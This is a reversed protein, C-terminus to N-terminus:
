EDEKLDLDCRLCRSAEDRADRPNYGLIVEEFSTKRASIPIEPVHIRPHRKTEEETPPTSSIPIPTYGNRHVTNSLTKGHLYDRISSAARQGASIAEIVTAPGTLADGGAFVGKVNTALTRKDAIIRESKDAKIDGLNMSTTDPHQGVAKIVMDVDLSYESNPIPEPTRRGSSDFAKLEMSVCEISRVKGDKEIVKTPAALFHFKVGEEEAAIVEEEEAPMDARERRYIV